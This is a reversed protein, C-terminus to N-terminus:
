FLLATLGHSGHFLTLHILSLLWDLFAVYESKM